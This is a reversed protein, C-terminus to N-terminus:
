FICVSMLICLRLEDLVEISGYICCDQNETAREEHWGAAWRRLGRAARWRLRECVGGRGEAVRPTRTESCGVFPLQDSSM